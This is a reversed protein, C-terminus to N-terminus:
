QKGSKLKEKLKTMGGQQSIYANADKETFSYKQFVATIEKQTVKSLKRLENFIADNNNNINQSLGQLPNNILTETIEPENLPIDYLSGGSGGSGGSHGSHGSGNSHQSGSSGERINQQPETFFTGNNYQAQPRSGQSSNNHTESIFGNASKNILRIIENLKHDIHIMNTNMHASQNIINTNIEELLITVTEDGSESESQEPEPLKSTMNHKDMESYVDYQSRIVSWKVSKPLSNFWAIAKETHEDM